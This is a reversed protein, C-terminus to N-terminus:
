ELGKSWAVVAAGRMCRFFLRMKDKHLLLEETAVALVRDDKEEVEEM